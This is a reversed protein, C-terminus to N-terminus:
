KNSLINTNFAEDKQLSNTYQTDYTFPFEVLDRFLIHLLQTRTDRDLNATDPMFTLIEQLDTNTQAAFTAAGGRTKTTTDLPVGMEIHSQLQNYLKGTKKLYENLILTDQNEGLISDVQNQKWQSLAKRFDDIKGNTESSYDIEEDSDYESDSLM